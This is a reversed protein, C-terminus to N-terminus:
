ENLKFNSLIIISCKDTEAIYAGSSQHIHWDKDPVPRTYWPISLNHELDVYIGQLYQFEVNEQAQCLKEFFDVARERKNM